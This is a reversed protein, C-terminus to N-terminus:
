ARIEWITLTATPCGNFLQASSTGNIATTGGDSGYRMKFTTSSTGISGTKIFTMHNTQSYNGSNEATASVAIANATSDQFMAVIFPGSSSNMGVPAQFQVILTNNTNTPTISATMFEELESIQPITNDLGCTTTTTDYTNYTANVVQVLRAQEVGAATAITDVNIQSM